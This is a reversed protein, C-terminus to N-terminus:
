RAGRVEFRRRAGGDVTASGEQLLMSSVPIQLRTEVRDPLEQTFYRDGAKLM